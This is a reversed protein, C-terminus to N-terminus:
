ASESYCGCCVKAIRQIRTILTQIDFLSTMLDVLNQSIEFIPM